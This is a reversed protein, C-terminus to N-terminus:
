TMHSPPDPVQALQGSPKIYLLKCKSMNSSHLRRIDAMHTVEDRNWMSVVAGGPSTQNYVIVAKSPVDLFAHRSM